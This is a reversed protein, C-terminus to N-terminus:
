NRRYYRLFFYCGFKTSRVPESTIQPSSKSKLSIKIPAVRKPPTAGEWEPDDKSPTSAATAAREASESRRRKTKFSAGGTRRSVNRSATLDPGYELPDRYEGCECSYQCHYQFLHHAFRILRDKFVTKHITIIITM